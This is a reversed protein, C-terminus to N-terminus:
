LQEIRHGRARLLSLISNPGSFHACGAVIMTPKGSQLASEIKPIWKENRWDLVRKNLNPADQMVPWVTAAIRQTDGGKWASVMERYDSHAYQGFVIAELLFVESEHDDMNALVNIHEDVSELGYTKCGRAAAARYVHSDLGLSNHVASFGPHRLVFMAIAWPRMHEWYYGSSTIKMLHKFTEPHVKDRVQGRNPYFAASRLKSIFLDELKPDFEFYFQQSQDIANVVVNPLPYASPPLAHISGLLYVPAKADAIRWLCHRGGGSSPQAATAPPKAAPAAKNAAYLSVIQSLAILAVIQARIKM